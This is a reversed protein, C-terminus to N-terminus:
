NQIATQRTSVLYTLVVLLAAASLFLSTIGILSGATQLMISVLSTGASLGGFYIGTSLGVRETSVFSLALPIQSEFVLTFALGALFVIFIAVDKTPNFLVSVLCVFILVLGTGLGRKVGIKVLLIEIPVALFASVLLITSTVGAIGLNSTNQVSLTKPFIRLLLNLQLGAGCGIIFIATMKGPTVLALPTQPPYFLKKKPLSSYFLNLSVILFIAALIFTVATGMSQIFVTLTPMAAGVLGFVLTLVANAKPLENLPATQQLLAIVPGRFILM